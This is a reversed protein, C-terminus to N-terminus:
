NGLTIRIIVHLSFFRSSWLGHVLKKLHPRKLSIINESNSQRREEKEVGDVYSKIHNM